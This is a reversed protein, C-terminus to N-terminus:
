KQSSAIQFIESEPFFDLWGNQYALVGALLRGNADEAWATFADKEYNVTITQDAIEIDMPTTAKSLERFPFYIAHGSVVLGLGLNSTDHKQPRTKPRPTGPQRNRYVYPFGKQDEVVMVKTNPHMERWHKWTTQMSPIVRLPTDLMAGSVAKSELQSWISHTERDVFLLNNKILGEAFDFTFTRNGANRAYM